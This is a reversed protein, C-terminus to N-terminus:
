RHVFHYNCLRKRHCSQLNHTLFASAVFCLGFCCFLFLRQYKRQSDMAVRMCQSEGRASHMDVYSTSKKANVMCPLVGVNSKRTSEGIIWLLVCVNILFCVFVFERQGETAVRLRQHKANVIRPLVGFTSKGRQSNTAVGWFASKGRQSDTAVRLCKNEANVKWPLVSANIKWTSEGAVRLCQNEM